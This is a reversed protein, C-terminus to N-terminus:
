NSAVPFELSYTMLGLSRSRYEEKSLLRDAERSMQELLADDIDPVTGLGRGSSGDLLAQLMEQAHDWRVLDTGEEQAREDLAAFWADFASLARVGEAGAYLRFGDAEFDVEVEQCLLRTEGEGVLVGYGAHEPLPLRVAGQLPRPVIPSVYRKGEWTRLALVFVVHPRGRVVADVVIRDGPHVPTRDQLRVTRGEALAFALPFQIAVEVAREGRGGFVAGAAIVVAAFGTLVPHRRTTIRARRALGRVRNTRVASPIGDQSLFMELDLRLERASQYRRGASVEMAKLCIAELDKPVAPNLKRPTAFDGRKVRELVDSIAGGGFARQLTLFEYLVLGLQYVDTRPDTGVRQSAAQEPAVYAVTGYLGETVAGALRDTNGALGFDLVVPHAGGILMINSPKLDRHVVRLAHTAEITRAVEVMVRAVTRSYSTAEVLDARGEPLPREIAETVVEAGRIARGRGAGARSLREAMREIAKALSVGDVLDMVVFSLEGDRGVEHVAVIGPHRIGALIKSEKLLLEERAPDGVDLAPLLKIAVRRELRTDFAAFVRGMGGAGIEGELRYRGLLVRREPGASPVASLALAAQSVLERFERREDESELRAQFEASDVEEGAERKALYEAARSEAASPPRAATKELEEDM